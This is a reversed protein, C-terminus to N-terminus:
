IGRATYGGAADKRRLEDLLKLRDNNSMHHDNYAKALEQDTYYYEPHKLHPEDGEDDLWHSLMFSKMMHRSWLASEVLDYLEIPIPYRWRRVANATLIIEGELKALRYRIFDKTVPRKM